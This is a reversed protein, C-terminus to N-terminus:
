PVRSRVPKPFECALDIWPVLCLENNKNQRLNSDVASRYRGFAGDFDAYKSAIEPGSSGLNAGVDCGNAARLSLSNEVHCFLNIGTEARKYFLGINRSVFFWKLM